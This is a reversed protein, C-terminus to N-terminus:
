RIWKQNLVGGILARLAPYDKRCDPVYLSRDALDRIRPTFRYGLFHM